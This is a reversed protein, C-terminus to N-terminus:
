PEPEIGAEPPTVTPSAPPTEAQSEPATAPASDVVGSQQVMKLFQEQTVCVTGVCLEDTHIEKAQISGNVILKAGVYLTDTVVLKDFASADTMNLDILDQSSNNQLIDAVSPVYYTNQVLMLVQSNVALVKGIIWGPATAKRARGPQTASLTLYDGVQVAGNEGTVKVPVQGALGILVPTRGAFAGTDNGVFAPQTSVVGVAQASQDIGCRKVQGGGAVCAVEGPVLGDSNAAFYEAYDAGSANVSGAANISRSTTADKGVYLTADAANWGVAANTTRVQFYETSSAGVTLKQSPTTIGLGLNGADTIRMKETVSGGIVRTAFALDGASSAGQRVHYISAGVNNASSVGFAIGTAVGNSGSTNLLLTQYNSVIGLDSLANVTSSIQLLTGPGTTGIGVSGAFYNKSNAGSQYIGYANANNAAIDIARYDAISTLTPSISLSRTAGNAGGTQNITGQLVLNSFDGTGSTPAVDQKIIFFPRSGATSTNAAELSFNYASASTEVSVANLIGGSDITIGRNTGTRVARFMTHAATPDNIDLLYSPSTTGIGVNGAFVADGAAVQLAHGRTITTNTGAAPANAIYLTAADTLTVASSSAFTPQAFSSGVRNAITGSGSTDTYTAAAAQLVAGGTTWSTFSKNTDIFLRANTTVSNGIEMNGNPDIFFADINTTSGIPTTTMRIQAGHASSTWTEATQLNVAAGTAFATGDYAQGQLGTIFGGSTRATPATSTGNASRGVFAATGGYRDAVIASGSGSVVHLPFAPSTTGIGVNGQDFIAAYNNQGAAATAYLGINTLANSGASRSGNASFFGAYNSLAGASTDFTNLSQSDIAHITGTQTTNIQVSFKNGTTPTLTGIAVPGGMFTSLGNGSIQAGTSSSNNGPTLQLSVIGSTNTHRFFRLTANDSATATNFDFDYITNGNNIINLNSSGNDLKLQNGNGVIHLLNTPSTTGIGLRHNTSDYFFKSNDQALGSAGQFIVSGATFGPNVSGAVSGTITGTVTLDGKLTSNNNVTLTDTIFRSSSLDTASFLIAGGFNQSPNPQVLGGPVFVSPIPAPVSPQVSAVPEYPAMPGPPGPPGADGKDGKLKGQTLLANIADNILQSIDGDSVSDALASLSTSDGLVSGTPNGINSDLGTTIQNSEALLNSETSGHSARDHHVVLPLSPADPPAITQSFGLGILLSLFYLTFRLRTM